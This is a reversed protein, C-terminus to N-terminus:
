HAVDLAIESLVVGIASPRHREHRSRRERFRHRRSIRPVKPRKEVRRRHIVQGSMPRLEYLGTEKRALVRHRRAPEAIQNRQRKLVSRVLIAATDLYRTEAGLEVVTPAALAKIGEREGM